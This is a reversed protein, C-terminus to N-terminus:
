SSRSRCWYFFEELWDQLWLQRSLQQSSWLSATESLIQSLTSSVPHMQAIAGIKLQHQIALALPMIAEPADQGILHAGLLEGSPHVILKCFSPTESQLKAKTLSRSPQKLVIIENGYRKRAQAETLGVRALPPNTWIAWPVNQYNVSFVPCFLANKVAINAEYQAIHACSYGGIVDGCAYIRSNATQLKRNVQIMSQENIGVANLNLSHLRPQRGAVLLVIDATILLENGSADVKSGTDGWHLTAHIQEADQGIKQIQYRTLVSVGESELRAQLLRVAELDEAALLRSHNPILTVKMGRRALFQALEVGAPECGLILWHKSANSTSVNITLAEPLQEPTVYDITQLGEIVPVIPYSEMALLYARARLLRQDVILAVQHRGLSKHTQIFQGEGSLVDLSCVPLNAYYEQESQWLASTQSQPSIQDWRISPSGNASSSEARQQTVLAVRAKYHAAMQAAYHAISTNGIVVLDYDVTM